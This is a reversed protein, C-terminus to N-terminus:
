AQNSLKYRFEQSQKWETMIKSETGDKKLVIARVRWEMEESFIKTTCIIRSIKCRKGQHSYGKAVTEQGLRYPCNLKLWDEKLRDAKVTLKRIQANISGLKEIIRETQKEQKTM